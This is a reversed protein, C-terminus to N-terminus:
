SAATKLGRRALYSDYQERARAAAGKTGAGVLPWQEAAYALADLLDVYRAGPRFAGYENLFDLQSKHVLIQGAKFFASLAEIRLAKNRGGPKVAEVALPLNRARAENQVFQLFANQQAVLEIFVTNIRHQKAVNLVDLVLDRPEVREARAELLLHRNTEM